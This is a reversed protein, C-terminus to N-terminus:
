QEGRPLLTENGEVFVLRAMAVRITNPNGAIRNFLDRAADYSMGRSLPMEHVLPGEAKHESVVVFPGEDLENHQSM